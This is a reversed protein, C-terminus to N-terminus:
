RARTCPAAGRAAGGVAEGGDAQQPRGWMSRAREGGRGWRERVCTSPPLSKMSRKYSTHTPPIDRPLVSRVMIDILHMQLSHLERYM